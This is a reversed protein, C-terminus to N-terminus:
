VKIKNLIGYSIFELAKIYIIEVIKVKEFTM